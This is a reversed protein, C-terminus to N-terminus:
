MTDGKWAAAGLVGLEGHEVRWVPVQQLVSGLVGKNLFRAVFPSDAIFPAIHASVGGALYVSRAGFAIALDGVFSGLWGCFVQVTESALPDDGAKAAALLSATDRWRPSVTRLVCLCEYLNIMGTGSLVRENDVHPWRQLLLRLVDLELPTGAALASHGVESALVPREGDAFRLAAGLGTGPGLVLAPWASAAGDGDHLPVLADAHVHPIALAVAEFDNILQLHHLGADRRTAERAVPWPLNANVLTDGQLLGAIAVVARLGAPPASGAFESLIAALSPYHACQYRRFGDIHPATGDDNAWALRAYTGGVDAVILPASSGAVPPTM